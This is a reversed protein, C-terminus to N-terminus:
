YYHQIDKKKHSKKAMETDQETFNRNADKAQKGIPNNVLHAM